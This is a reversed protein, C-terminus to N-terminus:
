RRPYLATYIDVQCMIERQKKSPKYKSGSSPPSMNRRFTPQSEVSYVPNYGLLCFEEFCPIYEQILNVFSTHFTRKCVVWIINTGRDDGGETRLM